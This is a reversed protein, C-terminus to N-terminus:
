NLRPWTIKTEMEVDDLNGFVRPTWEDMKIEMEAEKKYTGYPLM